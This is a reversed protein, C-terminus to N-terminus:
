PLTIRLVARWITWLSSLKSVQGLELAVLAEKILREIMVTPLLWTADMRYVCAFGNWTLDSTLCFSISVCLRTLALGFSPGWSWFYLTDYWLIVPIILDSGWAVVGQSFYASVSDKMEEEDTQALLGNGQHSQISSAGLAFANHSGVRQISPKRLHAQQSQNQDQQNNNNSSSCPQFLPSSAAFPSSGSAESNVM